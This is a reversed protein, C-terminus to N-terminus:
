LLVYLAQLKVSVAQRVGAFEFSCMDRLKKSYQEMGAEKRRGALTCM